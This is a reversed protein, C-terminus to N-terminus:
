AECPGCVSRFWGVFLGLFHCIAVALVCKRGDCRGQVPRGPLAQPTLGGRDM